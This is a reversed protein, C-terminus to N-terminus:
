HTHGVESRLEKNNELMGHITKMPKKPDKELHWRWVKLGNQVPNSM